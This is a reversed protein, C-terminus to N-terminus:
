VTCLQAARPLVGKCRVVKRLFHEERNKHILM